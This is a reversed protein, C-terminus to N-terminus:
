FYKIPNTNTKSLLLAFTPFKKSLIDYFLQPTYQESEYHGIDLLSIKGDAVFFDHYKLDATIYAHAGKNIAKQILFAGSGGCIAIRKYSRFASQTYRIGPANMTSAVHHLLEKYTLAKPLDGIIGSGIQDQSNELEIIEYAVVEYPHASKLARLVNKQLYHPLIVEIKIEKEESRINAKGSFPNAHQNPMFTGIGAIKFSCESYNGIEGAGANFLAKTVRDLYKEPVYTYLKQLQHPKPALVQTNLLKLRKAIKQNVGTDINDINTHAAYLAINHRIAKIIARSADTSPNLKKIGGFIIPHHAIILQCDKKIAEEVVAETCDLSLLVKSVATQRDGVLLGANDYDEQLSLPAYTELYNCFTDVTYNMKKTMNYIYLIGFLLYAM